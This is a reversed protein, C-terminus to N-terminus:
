EVVEIKLDRYLIKGTAGQLGLMVSIGKIGVPVSATFSVEKWDFSGGGIQAAPWLRKGNSDTIMLGLRGGQYHKLPKSIEEAKVLATVKIKEGAVKDSPVSLLISHNGVGNVVPWEIVLAPKGDDLKQISAFKRNAESIRFAEDFSKQYVPKRVADPTPAPVPAVEPLSTSGAPQNRVTTVLSQQQQIVRELNSNERELRKNENAQDTWRDKLNAVDQELRQNEEVVKTAETAPLTLTFGGVVMLILLYKM